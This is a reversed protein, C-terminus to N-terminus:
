RFLNERQRRHYDAEIRSAEARNDYAGGSRGPEAEPLGDDGDQVEDSVDLVRLVFWVVFGILLPLAISPGAAGWQAYATVAGVGIAVLLRFRIALALLLGFAFLALIIGGAIQVLIPLDFIEALINM